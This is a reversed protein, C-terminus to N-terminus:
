GVNKEVAVESAESAFIGEKGKIPEGLESGWRAKRWADAGVDGEM